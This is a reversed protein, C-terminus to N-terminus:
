QNIELPELLVIGSLVKSTIAHQFLTSVALSSFVSSSNSPSYPLLPVRPTKSVSIAAKNGERRRKQKQHLDSYVSSELSIMYTSPAKYSLCPQLKQLKGARKKFGKTLM